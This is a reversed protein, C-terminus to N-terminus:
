NQKEFLHIVGTQTDGVQTDGDYAKLFYYYAGGPLYQGTRKYNGAWPSGNDYNKEAFVLDGWRDTITIEVRTFGNVGRITLAGNPGPDEVVLGTPVTPM